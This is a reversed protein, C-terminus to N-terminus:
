LVTLETKKEGEEAATSVGSDHNVLEAESDALREM